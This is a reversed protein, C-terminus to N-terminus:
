EKVFSEINSPMPKNEQASRAIRRCVRLMYKMVSLQYPSHDLKHLKGWLNPPIDESADYRCACPAHHTPTACGSRVAVYQLSLGSTCAAYRAWYLDMEKIAQTVWKKSPQHRGEWTVNGTTAKSTASKSSNLPTDPTCCRPIRDSTHKSLGNHGRM